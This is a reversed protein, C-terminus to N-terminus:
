HISVLEGATVGSFGVQSGDTDIIVAEGEPNFFTKLGNLDLGGINYIDVYDEEVIDCSVKNESAVVYPRNKYLVKQGKSM